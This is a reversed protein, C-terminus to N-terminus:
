TFLDSSSLVTYWDGKYTSDTFLCILLYWAWLFFFLSSIALRQDNLLLFPNGKKHNLYIQFHSKASLLIWNNNSPRPSCCLPWDAKLCILKLFLHWTLQTSWHHSRLGVRGGLSDGARLIAQKWALSLIFWKINANGRWVTLWLSTIKLATSKISCFFIIDIKLHNSYMQDM